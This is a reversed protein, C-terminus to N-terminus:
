HKYAREHSAGLVRADGKGRHTVVVFLSQMPVRVWAHVLLAGLVVFRCADMWAHSWSRFYIPFLVFSGCVCVCCSRPWAINRAAFLWWAPRRDATKRFGSTALVACARDALSVCVRGPGERINTGRRSTKLNRRMEGFGRSRGTAKEVMIRASIVNGFKSFLRFLAENTMTNPIHFVFLNCGDPGTVCCLLLPFVM